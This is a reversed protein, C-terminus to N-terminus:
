DPQSGSPQHVMAWKLIDSGRLLGVIRDDSVVPVPQDGMQILSHSAQSADIEPSLTLSGALPVLIQELRTQSRLEPPLDMIQKLSVTGLCNKGQMVPWLLQNSRLLCDDVFNSVAMHAAVTDFRTRMLDKVKLPELMHQTFAQAYSASALHSLFWGILLLWMGGLSKLVLLNWLGLGMLTWGFWKGALSAYRTALMQDNTIRWVIARFVRGGDLPPIPIFNFVALLVNFFVGIEAM